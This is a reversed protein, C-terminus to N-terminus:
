LSAQLLELARRHTEAPRDLMPFALGSKPRPKIRNEVSLLWM